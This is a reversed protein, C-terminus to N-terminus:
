RRPTVSELIDRLGTTLDETTADVGLVAATAHIKPFEDEPLDALVQLRAMEREGHFVLRSVRLATFGIWYSRLLSFARAAAAQDLGSQELRSLTVEIIRFVAREALPQITAIQAVAPHAVLREHASAWLAIVSEIQDQQGDDPPIPLDQLAHDVLASLIQEKGGVLGYVRALSTRLREALRRMTLGALGQEDVIALAADLVDARELPRDRHRMESREPVADLRSEDAPSM